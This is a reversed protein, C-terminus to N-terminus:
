IADRTTANAAAAYALSRQLRDPAGHTQLFIFMSVIGSLVFMGGMMKLTHTLGDTLNFHAPDIGMSVLGSIVGNSGGSTVSRWIGIIWTEWDFGQANEAMTMM